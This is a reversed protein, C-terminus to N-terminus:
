HDCEMNAKNCGQFISANSNRNKQKKKKFLLITLKSHLSIIIPPLNSSPNLKGEQGTTSDRAISKCEGLSLKRIRLNLGITPVEQLETGPQGIAMTIWAQIQETYFFVVTHSVPRSVSQTESTSHWLFRKSDHCWASQFHLTNSSNAGILENQTSPFLFGM